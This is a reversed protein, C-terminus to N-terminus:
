AVMRADRIEKILSLTIPFRFSGTGCARRAISAGIIVMSIAQIAAHDLPNGEAVSENIVQRVNESRRRRMDLSFQQMSEDRVAIMAASHTVLVMDWGHSPEGPNSKESRTRLILAGLGGKLLDNQTRFHYAVTSVPMRVNTAILRHSLHSTGQVVILDAIHEAIDKSKSGEQLDIPLPVDGSECGCLSVIAQHAASLGRADGAFWESLRNLTARRLLRYNVDRGNALAFPREDRCYHAIIAGLLAAKQGYAPELMDRWFDEEAEILDSLLSFASPDYAAEILVEASTLAHLADESTEYDLFFEVATALMEPELLDLASFRTSWINKRSIWEDIQSQLLATLLAAKNGIHYSLSGLSVGARDAVSRLSLGHIGTAAIQERAHRVWFSLDSLQM